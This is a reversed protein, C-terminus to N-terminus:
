ASAPTIELQTEAEPQYDPLTDEMTWITRSIRAVMVTILALIGSITFMLGIGAGAGTGFLAAFPQWAPSGVMPEFVRDALPGALLYGVPSLLMAFHDIVAFVRGQVDPAVKAQLLSGVITNVIASPIQVLLAVIALAPITQAMGFLSIMTSIIVSYILITRVRRRVAGYISIAIAGILGGVNFLGLVIGYATDDGTRALLYPTILIGTTNLLFNVIMFGVVLWFLGPRAWLYRVGGIMEKMITGSLEKGESTQRPMPIRVVLIVLFAVLFTLLDILITGAVGIVAFLLGAIVPAVIGAIPNSM